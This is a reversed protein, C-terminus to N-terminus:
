IRTIITNVTMDITQVQYRSINRNLIRFLPPILDFKRAAPFSKPSSGNLKISFTSTATYIFILYLERLAKFCIIWGAVGNQRRSVFVRPKNVLKWNVAVHWEFTIFPIGYNMRLMNEIWLHYTHTSTAWPIRLCQCEIGGNINDDNHWTRM